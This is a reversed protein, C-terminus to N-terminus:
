KKEDVAEKILADVRNAENTLGAEDLLDALAVLEAIMQSKKKKKKKKIPPKDTIKEIFGINMYPSEGYDFNRRWFPPLGETEETQRPTPHDMPEDISHKSKKKKKKKSEKVVGPLDLEATQMQQMQQPSVTVTQGKLENVKTEIEKTLSTVMTELERTVQETLQSTAAQMKTNLNTLADSVARNIEEKKVDVTNQAIKKSM